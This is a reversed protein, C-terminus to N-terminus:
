LERFSINSGNTRKLSACELPMIGSSMYARTTLRKGITTAPMFRM